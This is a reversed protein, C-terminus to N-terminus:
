SLLVRIEGSTRPFVARLGQGEEGENDESQEAETLEDVAVIKSEIFEFDKCFKEAAAETIHHSLKSDRLRKLNEMADMLASPLFEDLAQSAETLAQPTFQILSLISKLDEKSDTLSSLSAILPQLGSNHLIFNHQNDILKDAHKSVSEDFMAARQKTFPYLTMVDRTTSLCNIVFITGEPDELKQALNEAIEIFPDLAEALIPEFGAERSANPALSTDYSKMLIRIHDLADRLFDPVGLDIPTQHPDNQVTAVHDRTTGRFQRHATEELKVLIHLLEAEDGLLKRFTVEYFNILNAIQYSLTPVEHSQVVQEIRQRLMKGVGIVNRNILGTLAKLPDFVETDEENTRSWPDSEIGARIGKAIEDGDSIFLVELAERESVTASHTWALMDGVYRLPDHAYFEIPKSSIQEDSNASSGTLAGHFSDTLVQERAEAFIDLCSQFMTPREALVRLARRIASSIQPNELNLTKIEKQIWRYLKQYAGNLNKSSQELIDMGMAQNETGLLVQCDKHIRKVRALITFFEENVPNASSTLASLEDESVTFCKRFAGLLQQKTEVEKTQGVFSSAEELVPATERHAASIHMRMQSCQTNLTNIAAGIRKLQAAVQGFEQIIEGNCAIVEKQVDLRLRRRTEQTNEVKRDDLYELADRIDLDAYSASLVSTLKNSLANARIGPTVGPSAPSDTRATDAVQSGEQFYGDAM